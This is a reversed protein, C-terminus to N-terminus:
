GYVRETEIYRWVPDPVLFRVSEGERARRRIETGSISTEAMDLWTIPAEVVAEVEARDIGPRMAVVLRARELVEKARHWSPTGLAADAGVVLWIEDAKPFSELTDITYSPGSRKMERDDVEFYEVASLAARLMALRHAADSVERDPKQWPDGTPLFTVMDVGLTRYAVEGLILHAM